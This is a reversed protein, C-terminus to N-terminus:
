NNKGIDASSAIKTMIKKAYFQESFFNILIVVVLFQEKASQDYLLLLTVKKDIIWWLIIKKITYGTEKPKFCKASKNLFIEDELKM